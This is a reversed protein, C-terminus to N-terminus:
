TCKQKRKFILYSLRLLYISLSVFYFIDIVNHGVIAFFAIHFYLLLFLCQGIGIKVICKPM